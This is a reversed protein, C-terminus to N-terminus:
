QQQTYLQHAMAIGATGMMAGTMCPCIATSAAVAGGFALAAPAHNQVFTGMQQFAQRAGNGFSQMTQGLTQRSYISSTAAAPAAYDTSVAPQPTTAVPSYGLPNYSNIRNMVSSTMMGVTQSAAQGFNALGSSAATYANGMFQAAPIFWGAFQLPSQQVQPQALSLQTVPLQSVPLQGMAISFQPAISQTQTQPNISIQLGMNQPLYGFSINMM